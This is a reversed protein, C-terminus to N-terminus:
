MNLANSIAALELDHTLYKHEHQNLKQSEYCVVHGEQMLIGGLGRKCLDTCVAFEKEPNEIKLIPTNTLLQKLQEFSAVCEETWEFRKGQRQMSTIPYTIWSFNWIFMGYYGVLEM